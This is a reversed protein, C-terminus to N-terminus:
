ISYKRPCPPLAVSGSGTSPKGCARTWGTGEKEEPVVSETSETEEPTETETDEPEATLDEITKNFGTAVTSDVVYITDGDALMLYYDGTVENESGVYITTTAEETTLSIVNAPEELGFDALNDYETVEETSTIDAAKELLTELVDEDIDISQDADYSWDSGNKTFSLTEGDLVYSFETIDSVSLSTVHITEAEAQEAEEEEKSTNYFSIGIYALILLILLVLLVLLQKKQKEM